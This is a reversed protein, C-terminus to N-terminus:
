VEGVWNEKVVRCTLDIVCNAFLENLLGDAQSRTLGSVELWWKGSNDSVILNCLESDTPETHAESVLRVRMCGDVDMYKVRM